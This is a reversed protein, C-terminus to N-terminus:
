RLALADGCRGCVSHAASAFETNQFYGNRSLRRADRVILRMRRPLKRRLVILQHRLATNEAALYAKTKWPATLVALMLHILAIM